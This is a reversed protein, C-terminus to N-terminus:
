FYFEGEKPQDTSSSTSSDGNGTAASLTADMAQTASSTQESGGCLMSRFQFAQRSANRFTMNSMSPIADNATQLDRLVPELSELARVQLQIYKLHSVTVKGDPCILISCFIFLNELM